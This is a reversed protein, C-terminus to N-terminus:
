FDINQLITRFDQLVCDGLGNERRHVAGAHVGARVTHLSAKSHGLGIRALIDNDADGVPSEVVLVRIEVIVSLVVAAQQAGPVLETQFTGGRLAKVVARLNYATVVQQLRTAVGGPEVAVGGVACM